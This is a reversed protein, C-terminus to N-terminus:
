QQKEERTPRPQPRAPGPRRKGRAKAKHTPWNHGGRHARTNWTTM